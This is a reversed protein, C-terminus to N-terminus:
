SDKIQTETIAEQNRNQKKNGNRNNGRSEWEMETIINGNRDNEPLEAGYISKM